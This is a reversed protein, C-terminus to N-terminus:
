WADRSRYDEVEDETPYRYIWRGDDDLKRMLIPLSMGGGAVPKWHHKGHVMLALRTKRAMLDIAAEIKRILM